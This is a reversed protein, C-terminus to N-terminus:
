CVSSFSIVLHNCDISQSSHPEIVKEKFSFPKYGRAEYKLPAYFEYISLQYNVIAFQYNIFNM